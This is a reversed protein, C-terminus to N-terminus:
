LWNGLLIFPAWYYPHNRNQSNILTLQANQLAKAKTITPTKLQHYFETMLRSTAEDNIFWLTAVASRAGAKIAVGALGLAARDDGVATQCASLVLLELPQEEYKRVGITKELESMTLKNDYTLLYSNRYDSSFEGHTAIHVMSYDGQALEHEARNILFQEDKLTVAPYMRSIRDLEINVSPLADYGQVAKTVGNVLVKTSARSAPTIHTLSLSPTSATTFKEVLFQKGDHLASMPISRLPGDPIFMLNTIKQERLTPEIPKILWDYLAQAYQLYDSQLRPNEVKIRFQRVTEIFRASDIPNIFQVINDKLAVLIELRDKLIIPYIVATHPDVMFIPTDDVDSDVCASQFYDEVEAIKYNELANIAEQRLQAQLKSNSQTAAQSLLLDIYQYYVPAIYRQFNSKASLLLSLRVKQLTEIAQRYTQLAEFTKNEAKLLRAAQWEWKFLSDNAQATQAKFIARRTYQMAEDLRHEEEYLQGVFGNAYSFLLPDNTKKALIYAQRYAEYAKARWQSPFRLTKQATQYLRGLSLYLEAKEKSDSLKKVDDDISQLREELGDKVKNEILAHALNINIRLNIKKSTPTTLAQQAQTLATIASDYESVSLYASGLDYQLSALLNDKNEPRALKIAQNLQDIATYHEGQRRSLVALRQWLKALWISNTPGPQNKNIADKLFVAADDYKKNVILVDVQELKQQLAHPVGSSAAVTTTTLTSGFTVTSISALGLATILGITISSQGSRILINTITRM